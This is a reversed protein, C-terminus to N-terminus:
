GVLRVFLTPGKSNRQRCCPGRTTGHQGLPHPSMLNAAAPGPDDQDGRGGALGVPHQGVVLPREARKPYGANALQRDAAPGVRIAGGGRLCEVVGGADEKRAAVLGPQARQDARAQSVLEPRPEGVAEHYRAGTRAGGRESEVVKSTSPLPTTLTM